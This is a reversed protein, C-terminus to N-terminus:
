VNPIDKKKALEHLLAEIKAFADYVDTFQPVTAITVYQTDERDWMRLERKDDLVASCARLWYRHGGVYIRFGDCVFTLKSHQDEALPDKIETIAFEGNVPFFKCANSDDARIDYSTFHLTTTVANVSIPTHTRETAPAEM